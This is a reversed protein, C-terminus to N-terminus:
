KRGSKEMDLAAKVGARTKSNRKQEEEIGKKEKEKEDELRRVSREESM